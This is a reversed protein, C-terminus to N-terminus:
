ERVDDIVAIGYNMLEESVVGLRRCYVTPCHGQRLLEMAFDRVYLSGGAPGETFESMENRASRKPARLLRKEVTKRRTEIEDLRDIIKLAANDWTWRSLVEASAKEGMARAEGANGYVHRMRRRLDWYSPQAWRFGTYYPCKAVAPVLRDVALPYANGANMFDCQASWDTAIVPLGCAMAELIPMGWGEGRTTLVFCDASRYLMGLQYSPVVHNLSVHIQGGGPNLELRRIEEHVNVSTDANLIKCVLVVPEKSSFEENFARLLLEPAKREGWEFVSLFTYRDSVRASRIHPNFYAPDIGLPIVHIPRTM